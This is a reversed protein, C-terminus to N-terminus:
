PCHVHGPARGKLFRTHLTAPVFLFDFMSCRSLRLTQLIGIHQKNAACITLQHCCHEAESFPQTMVPMHLRSEALYLFTVPMM